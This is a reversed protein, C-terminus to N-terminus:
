RVFVWAGPNRTLPAALATRRRLRWRFSGAWVHVLMITRNALLVWVLNGPLGFCSHGLPLAGTRLSTATSYRALHATTRQAAKQALRLFSLCSHAISQFRISPFQLELASGLLLPTPESVIVEVNDVPALLLKLTLDLFAVPKGLVLGFLIHVGPWIWQRVDHLSRQRAGGPAGTERPGSSWDPHWDGLPDHARGSDGNRPSM